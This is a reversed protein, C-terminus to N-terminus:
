CACKKKDRVAGVRYSSEIDNKMALGFSRSDEMEKRPLEESIINVVHDKVEAVGEGTRASVTFWSTLRLTNLWERM